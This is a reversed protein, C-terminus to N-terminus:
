GCSHIEGTSIPGPMISNFTIGKSGAYEMALNRTLIDLAAKSAGYLAFLGGMTVRAARSTLNIIRGGKRIVPLAAQIFGIPGLVNAEFSKAFNEPSITEFPLFDVVAANNVLIDIGPVNFASLTEKV